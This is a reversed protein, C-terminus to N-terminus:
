ESWLFEFYHCKCMKLMLMVKPMTISGFILEFETIVSSQIEFQNFVRCLTKEFSSDTFRSNNSLVQFNFVKWNRNTLIFDDVIKNVAM